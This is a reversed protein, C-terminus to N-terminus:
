LKDLSGAAYELNFVLALQDEGLLLEPSKGIFVFDQLDDLLQSGSSSSVQACSGCFKAHVPMSVDCKPCRRHHSSPPKAAVRRGLRNQMKRVQQKERCRFPMRQDRGVRDDRKDKRHKSLNFLMEGNMLLVLRQNPAIAFVSDAWARTTVHPWSVRAWSSNKTGLQMREYM